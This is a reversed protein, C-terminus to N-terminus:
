KGNSKKQESILRLGDYDGYTLKGNDFDTLWQKGIHGNDVMQKIHNRVVEKTTNNTFKMTDDAKITINSLPSINPKSQTPTKLKRAQSPKLNFDILKMPDLSNPYTGGSYNYVPSNIGLHLHNGTSTGSSGLVGLKEGQKLKQGVKVSISDLHAYNSEYKKGNIFHTVIVHKGYGTKKNEVLRVTGDAIVHVDVKRRKDDVQDIGGHFLRKGIHVPHNRYGYKSTIRYTDELPNSFIFDVM